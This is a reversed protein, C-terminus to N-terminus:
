KFKFTNAMHTLADCSGSAKAVSGHLSELGDNDILLRRIRDNKQAMVVLDAQATSLEHCARQLVDNVKFLGETMRAKHQLEEEEEHIRQEELFNERLKKLEAEGKLKLEQETKKQEAEFAEIAQQHICKLTDVKESTTDVKTSSDDKWAAPESQPNASLAQVATLEPLVEPRVLATSSMPATISDKDPSAAFRLLSQKQLSIPSASSCIKELHTPAAASHVNMVTAPTVQTGATSKFQRKKRNAGRTDELDRLDEALPVHYAGPEPRKRKGPQEQGASGTMASMKKKSYKLVVIKSPRQPQSHRYNPGSTITSTPSSEPSSSPWDSSRPPINVLIRPRNNPPRPQVGSVKRGTRKNRRRSSAAAISSSRAPESDDM